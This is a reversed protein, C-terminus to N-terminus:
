DILKYGKMTGELGGFTVFPIDVERVRSPDLEEVVRKTDWLMIDMTYGSPSVHAGVPISYTDGARYFKGDHKIITGEFARQAWDFVIKPIV